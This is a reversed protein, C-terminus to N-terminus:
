KKVKKPIVAKVVAWEEETLMYGNVSITGVGTVKRWRQAKRPNIGAKIAWARISKTESM